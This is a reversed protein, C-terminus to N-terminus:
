SSRSLSWASLPMRWRTAGQDVAEEGPVRDVGGAARVVQAERAAQAAELSPQVVRAVQGVERLRQVVPVAKSLRLVVRVVARAAWGVERLQQVVPAVRVVERLRQVVPVAKSLRLVVRVVARAARGVERLQQVVPAM